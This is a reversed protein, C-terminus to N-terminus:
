ARRPTDGLHLHPRGGSWRLAIEQSPRDPFGMAAAPDRTWRPGGEVGRFLLFLADSTPHQILWKDRVM